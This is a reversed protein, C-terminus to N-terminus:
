FSIFLELARYDVFNRQECRQLGRPTIRRTNPRSVESHRPSDASGEDLLFHDRPFRKAVTGRTVLVSKAREAFCDAPSECGVYARLKVPSTPDPQVNNICVYAYTTIYITTLRTGYVGGISTVNARHKGNIVVVVQNM